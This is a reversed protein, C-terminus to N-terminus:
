PRRCVKQKTATASDSQPNAMSSPLGQTQQKAPASSTAKTKDTQALAPMACLASLAAVATLHRVKM